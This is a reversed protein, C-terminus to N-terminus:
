VWVWTPHKSTLKSKLEDLTDASVTMTWDVMDCVNGYAFSAYSYIAEFTGDAQQRIDYRANGSENVLSLKRM